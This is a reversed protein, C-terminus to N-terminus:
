SADFVEEPQFEEEYLAQLERGKIAKTGLKNDLWTLYVQTTAPNKHRLAQSIEFLSKEEAALERAFCHRFSHPTLRQEIEAHLARRKVMRRINNPHLKVYDGGKISCFLPDGRGPKLTARADRWDQMIEKTVQDMGVMAFEGNKGNLVAIECERMLIDKPALDLAESIRLGSRWLVAILAKDRKSTLSHTRRGKRTYSCEDLLQRIKDPAIKEPPFTKGLRSNQNTINM